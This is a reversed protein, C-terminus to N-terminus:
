GKKFIRLLGLQMRKIALMAFGDLREQSM